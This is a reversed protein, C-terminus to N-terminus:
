HACYIELEEKWFEELEGSYLRVGIMPDEPHTQGCGCDYDLHEVRGVRGALCPPVTNDACYIVRVKAGIHFPAGEVDTCIKAV